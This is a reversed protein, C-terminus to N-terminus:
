FRKQIMCSSLFYHDLKERAAIRQHTSQFPL